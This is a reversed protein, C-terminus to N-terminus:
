FLKLDGLSVWYARYGGALAHIAPESLVKNRQSKALLGDVKTLLMSFASIGSYASDREDIPRNLLLPTGFVDVNKEQTELTRHFYALTQLSASYFEFHNILALPLFGGCEDWTASLDASVAVNLPIHQGELSKRLTAKDVCDHTKTMISTIIFKIHDPKLFRAGDPWTLMFSSDLNIRDPNKKYDTVEVPVEKKKKRAVQGGLVAHWKTAFKSVSGDLFIPSGFAKVLRDLLPIAKLVNLQRLLQYGYLNAAVMACNNLVVPFAEACAEFMILVRHAAMCPLQDVYETATKPAMVLAVLNELPPVGSRSMPAAREGRAQLEIGTTIFKPNKLSGLIKTKIDGLHDKVIAAAPDGNPSAWLFIHMTDIVTTILLAATLLDREGLLARAIYSLAHHSQAQRSTTCNTAILDDASIASLLRVVADRYADKNLVQPTNNRDPAPSPERSGDYPLAQSFITVELVELAIQLSDDCIGPMKEMSKASLELTIERAIYQHKSRVAELAYTILRTTNAYCRAAILIFTSDKFSINWVEYIIDRAAVIGSLYHRLAADIKDM